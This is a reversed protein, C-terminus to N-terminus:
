KTADEEGKWYSCSGNPSMFCSHEFCYWMSNGRESNNCNACRRTIPKIEIDKRGDVAGVDSIFRGLSCYGDPNESVFGCHIYTEVWDDNAYIRPNKSNYKCDKCLVVEKQVRKDSM